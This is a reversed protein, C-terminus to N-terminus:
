NGGGSTESTFGPTFGPWLYYFGGSHDSMGNGINLSAINVQTQPANVPSNAYPSGIYNLPRHFRVLEARKINAMQKAVTFATQLDGLEDALGVKVATMGSIIRGDTLWPLDKPDINPRSTKVTDVFRAYFDDVLQQLIQSQADTMSELPSGVAKNPGSTIARPEIGWRQLAPKISITQMIVGISATISTPYTVIYDSACAVYYGGSAALDMFLAVVPMGTEQKFRIIQRYIDDSATVTGGPSNIRLILARVRKDKRAVQLKEYIVSVPNEGQKLLSPKAYNTIAGTIDIIAVRGDIAGRDRQVVKTKLRQDATNGVVLTMPGCGTLLAFLCVFLMYRCIM